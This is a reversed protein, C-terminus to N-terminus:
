AASTYEVEGDLDAVLYGSDGADNSVFVWLHPEQDVVDRQYIVYRSTVDEVGLTQEAQDLVEIVKDSRLDGLDVPAAASSEDVPDGFSQFSGGSYNWIEASDGDTPVWAVVYGDYFVARVVDTHDFREEFVEVFDDIGEATLEFVPGEPPPQSQVEAVENFGSIAFVLVGAIGVVMLAVVGVLCGVTVRRATATAGSAPTAKRSGGALAVAETTSGPPPGYLDAPVSAAPVASPEAPATGAPTQTPQPEPAVAIDRVLVALEGVTAASKAREIRLDHDQQSIRGNRLAADIVYAAGDRDRDKAREHPDGDFVRM